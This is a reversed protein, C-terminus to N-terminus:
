DQNFKKILEKQDDTLEKPLKVNVIIYHDGLNKGRVDTAGEGKIRLKTGPQICEPINVVYEKRVLGVKKSCGLLAEPMTIDLESYINNGDRIFDDSPEVLIRVLTTVNNKKGRVRLTNENFIGAPIKLDISHKSSIKGSGKCIKCSNRSAWGRGSCKSCTLQITVYGHTSNAKGSGGCDPCSVRGSSPEGGTGECDNCNNKYDFAIHKSVGKISEEFTIRATIQVEPTPRQPQGRPKNYSDEHFGRFRSSNGFGFGRLIDEFAGFGSRPGQRSEFAPGPDCTGFRDYMQKKEVDSLVNYAESVEKFKTEANPDEQNRDPHHELALKRFAKKIETESADRSVGLIEYYDKNM